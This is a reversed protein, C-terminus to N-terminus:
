RLPVQNLIEFDMLNDENWSIGVNDYTIITDKKFYCCLYQNNVVFFLLSKDMTARKQNLVVDEWDQPFAGSPIKLNDIQGALELKAFNDTEKNFKEFLRRIEAINTGYAIGTVM